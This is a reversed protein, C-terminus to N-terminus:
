LHGGSDHLQHLQDILAQMEAVSIVGSRNM